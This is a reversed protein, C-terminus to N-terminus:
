IEFPLQGGEEQPEPMAVPAPAEVPEPAQEARAQGESLFYVRDVIVEYAKRNNGDRDQYSRTQLSGQVGIREGKKVYQALLEATKGWAVCDIFDTAKGNKTIRDVAVCFGVTKSGSSLTKLEMEKTTRGVIIISNM